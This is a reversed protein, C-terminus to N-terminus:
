SAVLAAMSAPTFCATSSRVAKKSDGMRVNANVALSVLCSSRWGLVERLLRVAGRDELDAEVAGFWQEILRDVAVHLLLRPRQQSVELLVIGLVHQFFENAGAPDIFGAPEVVLRPSHVLKTM